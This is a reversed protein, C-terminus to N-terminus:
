ACGHIHCQIKIKPVVSTLYMGINKMRKRKFMPTGSDQVHVLQYQRQSLWRDFLIKLHVNKLLFKHGRMLDKTIIITDKGSNLACYLLYPDDQSLDQTLFVTSHQRIYGWNQRPWKNMHNRGLVLIKKGQNVFHSVVSAVLGSTVLPPQKAGVSYAVNLGDIVVDFNEMTSIFNKFKRLEDSTTKNFVDKGVIVNQIIKNKLDNFEDDTLDFSTLKSRHTVISPHVNIEIKKLLEILDDLSDLMESLLKWALDDENNVFAASIVANYATASATATVKVEELLDICHKWQTTLSIARIVNDLTLADLAPYSKRINNYLMLIRDEDQQSLKDVTMADINFPTVPGQPGSTNLIKNRVNKWDQVSQISSNEITKWLM